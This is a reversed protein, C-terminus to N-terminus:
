TRPQTTEQDGVSPEYAWPGGFRSSLGSYEGVNNGHLGHLAKASILM